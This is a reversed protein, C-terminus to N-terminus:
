RSGPPRAMLEEEYRCFAGDEREEPTPPALSVGSLYVTALAVAAIM